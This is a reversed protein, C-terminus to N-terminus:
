TRATRQARLLNLSYLSPVSIVAFDSRQGSWHSMLEIDSAQHAKYFYFISYIEALVFTMSSM